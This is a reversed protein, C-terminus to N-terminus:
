KVALTAGVNVCQSSAVIAGAGLCGMYPAMPSTQYDRNDFQQYRYGLKPMLNSTLKFKFIAAVDRIRTATQPYDEPTSTSAACNPESGNGHGHQAYPWAYRVMLA